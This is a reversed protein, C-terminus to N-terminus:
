RRGRDGPLPLQGQSTGKRKGRNRPPSTNRAKDPSQQAHRFYEDLHSRLYPWLSEAFGAPSASSSQLRASEQKVAASHESLPISANVGPFLAVTVQRAQKIKLNVLPDRLKPDVLVVLEDFSFDCSPPEDMRYPRLLERGVLRGLGDFASTWLVREGLSGIAYAWATIEPWRAVQSEALSLSPAGGAAITVLYASLVMLHLRRQNDRDNLQNLEDVLRDFLRLRMEPTLSNLREFEAAAPEFSGLVRAFVAGEDESRRLRSEHLDRLAHVMPALQSSNSTDARGCGALVQWIPQLASRLKVIRSDQRAAPAENRCMQNAVDLRRLIEETSTAGWLSLARAISFSQTALCASIRISSLQREASLMAEAIILGVWAAEFGGLEPRRVLGDLPDFFKPTLLHCWTTLPSLDSRLQSYRGCLRQVDQEQAVLAVPRAVRGIPDESWVVGITGPKPSKTQRLSFLDVSHDTACGSVLSDFVEEDALTYRYDIDTNAVM